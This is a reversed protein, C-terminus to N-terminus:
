TSREAASWAASLKDRDILPASLPAQEAEYQAVVARLRELEEGLSELVAPVWRQRGEEDVRGRVLVVLRTTMGRSSAAEGVTTMPWTFTFHGRVMKLHDREDRGLEIAEHADTTEIEVQNTNSWEICPTEAPLCIAEQAQSPQSPLTRSRGTSAAKSPLYFARYSSSQIM